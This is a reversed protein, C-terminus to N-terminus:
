HANTEADQLSDSGHKAERIYDECKDCLELGYDTYVLRQRHFRGSEDFHRYRAIAILKNESDVVCQDCCQKECEYLADKCAKNFRFYDFQESDYVIPTYRLVKKVLESFEM